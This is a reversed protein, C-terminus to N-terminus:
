PVAMKELNLWQEHSNDHSETVSRIDFTSCNFYDILYAIFECEHCCLFWSAKTRQCYLDDMWNVFMKTYQKTPVVTLKKRTHQIREERDIWKFMVCKWDYMFHTSHLIREENKRQQANALRFTFKGKVSAWADFISFLIKEGKENM